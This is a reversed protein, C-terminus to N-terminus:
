RGHALSTSLLLSLRLALTNTGTPKQIITPCNKSNPVLGLPGLNTPNWGPPIHNEIGNVAGNLINGPNFNPLNPLSPLDPDRAILDADIAAASSSRVLVAASSSRVLAAVLLTSISATLYM